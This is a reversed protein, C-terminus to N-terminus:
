VVNLPAEFEDVDFLKVGALGAWPGPIRRDLRSNRTRHAVGMV